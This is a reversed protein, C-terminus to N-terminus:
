MSKDIIILQSQINRLINLYFGEKFFINKKKVKM